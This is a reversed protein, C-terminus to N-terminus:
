RGVNMYPLIPLNGEDEGTGMILTSPGQGNWRKAAELQAEALIKEIIETGGTNLAQVELRTKEALAEAKLIEQKKREEEQATKNAESLALQEQVEGFRTLIGRETQDVITASGVVFFLAVFVFVASLVLKITQGVTM